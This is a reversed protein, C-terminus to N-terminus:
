QKSKPKKKEAALKAQVEDLKQQASKYLPSKKHNKVLEGFFIQADELNGLEISCLGIKYLADDTFAGTGFKEVIKIYEGLASRCKKEDYYLEALRYHAEDAVGAEDPWRRLVERYVGRSDEVKGARALDKAENLLTKADKPGADKASPPPALPAPTQKELNTVRETLSGPGNFKGELQTLRYQLLEIQGRLEQLDRSLREIQVGFDTNSMRSARNLDELATQVQRIEDDVRAKQEDVLKSNAEQKTALVRIDSEMQRGTETPVWCATAALWVAGCFLGCHLPGRLKDAVIAGWKKPGGAL